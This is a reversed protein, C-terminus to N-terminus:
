LSRSGQPTWRAAPKRTKSSESKLHRWVAVRHGLERAVLPIGIYPLFIGSVFEIVLELFMLALRPVQVYRDRDGGPLAGDM